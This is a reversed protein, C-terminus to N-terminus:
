YSDCNEGNIRFVPLTFGESTAERFRTLNFQPDTFNEGHSHLHLQTIYRKSNIPEDVIEDVNFFRLKVLTQRNPFNFYSRLMYVVAIKCESISPLSYNVNSNLDFYKNLNSLKSFELQKAYLFQNYAVIISHNDFGVVVGNHIRQNLRTPIM